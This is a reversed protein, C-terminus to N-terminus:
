SQGAVMSRAEAMVGRARNGLHRAKKGALEQADNAWSSVKDRMLAQRRRGGQPDFVYMLGAGLAMGVLLMSVDRSM